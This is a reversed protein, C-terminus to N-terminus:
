KLAERHDAVIKKFRDNLHGNLTKWTAMSVSSLCDAPLSNRFIRLAEESLSQAEVHPALHADVATVSNSLLVEWSNSFVIRRKRSLGAIATRHPSYAVPSHFTPDEFSSVLSM